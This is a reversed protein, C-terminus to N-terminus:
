SSRPKYIVLTVHTDLYFFDFRFAIDECAEENRQGLFDLNFKVDKFIERKAGSHFYKVKKSNGTSAVANRKNVILGHPETM